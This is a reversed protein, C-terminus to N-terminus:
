SPTVFCPEVGLEGAVLKGTDADYGSIEASTLENPACKSRAPRAAGEVRFSQPAYEPDTFLVLTPATHGRM